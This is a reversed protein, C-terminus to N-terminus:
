AAVAAAAVRDAFAHLAAVDADTLGLLPHVDHLLTPITRDRAAAWAHADQHLADDAFAFPRDAVHDAVAPLKYTPGHSQDPHESFRIVPLPPLGLDGVLHRNAADEWLTAWVLDFRARLGALVQPLDQRFRLPHHGVALERMPLPHRHGLANLVGDVDLLLLPRDNM